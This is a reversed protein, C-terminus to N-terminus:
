AVAAVEGISRAREAAPAARECGVPLAERVVAEAPAAEGIAIRAQAGHVARRRLQTLHLAEAM